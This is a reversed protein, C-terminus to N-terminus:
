KSFKPPRVPPLGRLLRPPLVGPCTTLTFDLYFPLFPFQAFVNQKQFTFVYCVDRCDSGQSCRMQQRPTLNNKSFYTAIVITGVAVTAVIVIVVTLFIVVTVIVLTVKLATV